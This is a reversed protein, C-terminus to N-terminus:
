NKPMENEMPSDPPLPTPEMMQKQQQENIERVTQEADAAAAAAPDDMPAADRPPAPEDLTAPMDAVPAEDGSRIAEPPPPPAEDPRVSYYFAAVVLVVGALGLWILNRNSRV